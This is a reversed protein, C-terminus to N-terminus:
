KQCRLILLSTKIVLGNKVAKNLSDYIINYIGRVTEPALKKVSSLNNVTDQIVDVRLDNLRYKGIAPKIHNKIRARYNIYTMPKIESKKYTELWTDLWDSVTIKSPEVYKGKDLDSLAATIKKQVENRTKGYV